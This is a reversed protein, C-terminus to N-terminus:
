GPPGSSPPRRSRTRALARRRPRRRRGADRRRGRGTGVAVGFTGPGGTSTTRPCRRPRAGRARRAAGRAPTGRLDRLPGAPAPVHGRRGVVDALGAHQAAEDLARRGPGAGHVGRRDAAPRRQVRGRRAAGVRAAPDLVRVRRTFPRLSRPPCRRRSTPGAPCCRTPTRPSSSCPSRTAAPRARAGARAVRRVGPGLGAASSSAARCGGPRARDLVLRTSARRRPRRGRGRRGIVLMAVPDAILRRAAFVLAEASPRDLLHADDVLVALPRTRPRAASCASRPPASRSGTRRRGRGGARAGVGAGRGAAGAIADLLGLVPRLLQCCAASRSRGSPRSGPRGCCGCGPRRGRRPGDLLATKGIGAEGTLVLVGSRVSGRGPSWGSSSRGSASGDSWCADLRPHVVLPTVRIRRIARGPRADVPLDSVSRPPVLMVVIWCAACWRGRCASPRRTGRRRRPRRSASRRAPRSPRCARSSGRGPRRAARGRRGLQGLAGAGALVVGALPEVGLGGAAVDVVVRRGAAVRQRASCATASVSSDLGANRGPKKWIASPVTWSAGLMMSAAGRAAVADAPVLVVGVHVDAALPEEAGAVVRLRTASHSGASSPTTSLSSRRAGRDGVDAAAVAGRRDQHRLRERVRREDARVVVGSDISSRGRAPRPPRADGVPDANSTAGARRREGAGAVVQDVINSQRCSM